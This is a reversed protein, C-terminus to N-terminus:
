LGPEGVVAGQGGAGGSVELYAGFEVGVLAHSVGLGAVGKPPEVVEAFADEADQPVGGFPLGSLFFLKFEPDLVEGLVEFVGDFLFPVIGADGEDDVGVFVDLEGHFDQPVLLKFSM